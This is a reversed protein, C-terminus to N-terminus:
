KRQLQQQEMILSTTLKSRSMDMHKQITQLLTLQPVHVSLKSLSNVAIIRRTRRIWRMKFYPQSIAAVIKNSVSGSFTLEKDFRRQMGDLLATVLPQCHVLIKNQMTKLKQMVMHLTPMIHGYFAEKEGQLKDLAIAILQMASVYENLCELETKMFEPTYVAQCV